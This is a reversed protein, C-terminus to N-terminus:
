DLRRVLIVWDKGPDSPPQGLKVQVNRQRREEPATTEISTVSGAQFDGGNRPDFWRVSYDAPVRKLKLSLEEGGRKSYVIYFDQPVALVYADHGTVVGDGSVLDDASRASQYPM